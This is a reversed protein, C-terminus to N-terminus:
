RVAKLTVNGQADVAFGEADFRAELALRQAKAALLRYHLDFVSQDFYHGMGADPGADPGAKPGAEPAPPADGELVMFERRKGIM